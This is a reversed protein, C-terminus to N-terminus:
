EVIGWRLLEQHVGASHIMVADVRGIDPGM